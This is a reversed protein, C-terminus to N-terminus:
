KEGRVSEISKKLRDELGIDRTKTSKVITVNDDESVKNKDIIFDYADSIPSPNKSDILVVKDTLGASKLYEGWVKKSMDRTYSGVAKESIIVYVIDFKHDDVLQRVIEAHGKHPPKFSGPFLAIKKGSGSVPVADDKNMNNGERQATSENLAPANDQNARLLGLLHGIPAFGESFKYAKGDYDFQFGNVVSQNKDASRLRMLQTKLVQIKEKNDSNQIESAAKLLESRLKSTDKNGDLTFVSHLSKLMEVSFDSIIMELPKIATTLIERRATDNLFNEKVFDIDKKNIKKAIDQVSIGKNGLVRKAINMKMNSSFDKIKGKMVIHNIIAYVRAILFGNISSDNSLKLNDSLIYGNTQSILSDLDNVATNFQKKESLSFLRKVAAVEIAHSNDANDKQHKSILDSLTGSEKSLDSEIFKSSQRDYEKHDSDNVRLSKTDYSIIDPTKSAVITCSYFKNVDDGFLQKQEEHSLSRVAREFSILTEALSNKLEKNEIDNFSKV